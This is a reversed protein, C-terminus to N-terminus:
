LLRNTFLGYCESELPRCSNFNSVNNLFIEMNLYCYAEIWDEHIEVALARILRLASEENPFIRIVHTRRKIEQNLRELMNTSKLHKHHERPLRYFTLISSAPLDLRNGRGPLDRDRGDRVGPHCDSAVMTKSAVSSAAFSGAASANVSIVSSAMESPRVIVPSCPTPRRLFARQKGGLALRGPLIARRLVVNESFLNRQSIDCGPVHSELGELLDRTAFLETPNPM